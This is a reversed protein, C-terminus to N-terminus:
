NLKSKILRAIEQLEENPSKERSGPRYLFKRPDYGYIGSDGEKRPVIHIHLHDVDQGAVQGENWAINFGKAGFASKLVYRLKVVMNFLAESEEKTLDEINKIHRVPCVLLHGSVIPIYTPFVLVLDDQYIIGQKEIEGNCFPCEKEKNNM